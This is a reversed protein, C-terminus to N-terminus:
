GKAFYGTAPFALMAAAAHNLPGDKQGRYASIINVSSGYIVGIGAKNLISPLTLWSSLSILQINFTRNVQFL